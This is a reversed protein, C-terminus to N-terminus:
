LVFLGLATLLGGLCVGAGDYAKRQFRVLGAILFVVCALLFLTDAWDLEGNVIGDSLAVM